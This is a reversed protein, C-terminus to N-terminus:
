FIIKQKEVDWIDLEPNANIIGYGSTIYSSALLNGDPSFTMYDPAGGLTIKPHHGIQGDKIEWVYTDIDARTAFQNQSSNFAYNWGKLNSSQQIQEKSAVEWVNIVGLGSLLYKDDSTFAINDVCNFVGTKRYIDNPYTYINGALSFSTDWNEVSWVIIGPISAEQNLWTSAIGAALYKDDHSFELSSPYGKEINLHTIINMHITDIIYIGGTEGFALIKGDHSYAVAGGLIGDCSIPWKWIYTTGEQQFVQLGTNNNWLMLTNSTNVTAMTNGDPSFAIDVVDGPTVEGIKTAKFSQADIIYSGTDSTTAALFSGDSNFNMALVQSGLSASNMEEGTITNFLKVQGQDFGVALLKGDSSFSVSMGWGYSKSWLSSVFKGNDLSVTEVGNQGGLAALKYDPSFALTILGAVRKDHTFEETDKPLCFLHTSFWSYSALVQNEPCFDKSVSSVDNFLSKEQGTVIDFISGKGNDRIALISSSDPSILMGRVPSVRNRPVVWDIKISGEQGLTASDYFSIGDHTALALLKGNPAWAIDEGKIQEGYSRILQLNKINSATIPTRFIPTPTATNTPNPTHSPSPTITITQSPFATPSSISSTPSNQVTAAPSCGSIVLIIIFFLAIQKNM